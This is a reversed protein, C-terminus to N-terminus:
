HRQMLKGAPGHKWCSGEWPLARSARWIPRGAKSAREPMLAAVKPDYSLAVVPVGASLGLIVAHLRMAVVLSARALLAAAAGPPLSGPVFRVVASSHLRAGLAACIAQDDELATNPNAQFPLFVFPAPVKGAFHELARGMEQQWALAAPGSKWARPCVGVFPVGDGLGLGALVREATEQDSPTVPLSFAPDALVRVERRPAADEGGCTDLLAASEPDRVTVVKCLDATLRTYSRGTPTSLPGVGVAYLMCPRGAWHALLPLGGYFSVSDHRSTLYTEPDLGWYDQFLGGGGVLVLDSQRVAAELGAIDSWHVGEVDYQRATGEEDGSVVVAGLGPRLARLDSLMGALIAEDGTNGFGFYGAILVRPHSTVM